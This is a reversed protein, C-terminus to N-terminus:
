MTNKIPLTFKIKSGNGEQSKVWIEGGQKEVFEKCLVLGLGSGKENATGITSANNGIEFLTEITDKSMGIGNDSVSIEIVNADLATSIRVQGGTHTFKIANSILNRLIIRLMNQDAVVDIHNSEDYHIEIEKINAASTANEIVQTIILSLDLKTAVFDIQGTQSKAWNLLNDLLILTSKASSNIIDLLKKQRDEDYTGVNELLLNSFGLIGNFPSRLDHAIISFLKDKTENVVRLNQESKTLAKLVEEKETIDVVVALTGVRKEGEYFPAATIQVYKLKGTDSVIQLQYTNTKGKERLSTQKKVVEAQAPNLFEFLNRKELTGSKVDFIREIQPNAFIFNEKDDVVGLGEGMVNVLTRYKKESNEVAIELKRATSVDRIIGVHCIIRQNEIISFAMLNIHKDVSDNTYFLDGNFEGSSKLTKRVKQLSEEGMFFAPTNGKLDEATCGLIQEHASNQRVYKLNKDVIAIGEKSNDFIKKYVSLENEKEKLISQYYRQILVYILLLIIFTVSEYIYGTDQHTFFHNFDVTGYRHNYFKDSEFIGLAVLIFAIPSYLKWRKDKAFFMFSISIPIILLYKFVSDYGYLLAGMLISIIGSFVLFLKAASFKHFYNLVIPVVLILAVSFNYIATRYESITVGIGVLGLIFIVSFWAIRNSLKILGVQETSLSSTVGVEFLNKLIRKM